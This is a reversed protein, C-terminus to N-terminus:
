RRDLAIDMRELIGALIERSTAFNLRVFGEGPTGFRGGDSLAVRGHELFFDAAPENLGLSRCDMWALYTAQPPVHGITPMRRAVHEAVIARNGRLYSLTGDLWAEGQEWAVKSALLGLSSVAGRQHWPITNFRQQLAESGFVAVACRLGAINFAKSASMLTITRAAAQPGLTAFPVHPTEDLVLDAHIEDSVVTLDHREAVDALRELESRTFARGTPNHPNCLMLLRTDPQLASQLADFDIEYGGATHLLPQLVARRGTDSAAELFPPYIPTFIVAGEGRESFLELAYYLGQVVDTLPEVRTEDVQWGHRRAVWACFAGRMPHQSARVPYGLDGSDIATRLAERIPTAQPLDMDAVWAPLVDDPYANWKIGQRARLAPLKPMEM